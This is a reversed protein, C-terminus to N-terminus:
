RKSRKNELVNILGSGDVLTKNGINVVKLTVEMEWDIGKVTVLKNVSDISLIEFGNEPFDQADFIPDADLEEKIVENYKSKFNSSVSPNNNIWNMPSWLSDHNLIANNSETAYENIFNLAVSYDTVGEKLTQQAENENTNASNCSLLLLILLSLSITKM